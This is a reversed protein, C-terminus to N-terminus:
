GTFNDARRYQVHTDRDAHTFGFREYMAVAPGNPQDEEPRFDRCEAAIKTRFLEKRGAEIPGIGSRAEVLASWFAEITNGVPSVVGLGTVAVRKM